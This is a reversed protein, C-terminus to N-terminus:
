TIPGHLSLDVTGALRRVEAPDIEPVGYTSLNHHAAALGLKAADVINHSRVHEYALAGVMADGCGISNHGHGDPLVMKETPPVFHYHDEPTVLLLGEEAMSLALIIDNARSFDVASKLREALDRTKHGILEHFESLNPKILWPKAPLAQKLPASHIDALTYVGRNHALDILRAYFDDGLGRPLSGSVVLLEVQPLRDAVLEILQEGSEASVSPGETVSEVMNGVDVDVLCFSERTEGAIAVVEYSIGHKTAEEQWCKGLRGGALGLAVSRGGLKGIVETAHVGSGGPQVFDLLARSQRGVHFGRTVHVRDLAINPTVTLIM